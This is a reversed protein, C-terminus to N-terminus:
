PARQALKCFDRLAFWIMHRMARNPVLRSYAARPVWESSM